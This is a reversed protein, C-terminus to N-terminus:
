LWLSIGCAGATWVTALGVVTKCVTWVPFATTPWWCVPSWTTPFVGSMLPYAKLDSTLCSAGTCAIAAGIAAGAGNGTGTAAGAGSATAAGAGTAAAGPLNRKELWSGIIITESIYLLVSVFVNLM